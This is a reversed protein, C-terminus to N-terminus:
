FTIVMGKTYSLITKHLADAIDLWDHGGSLRILANKNGEIAFHFKSISNSLDTIVSKIEEISQLEEQKLAGSGEGISLLKQHMQNRLFAYGGPAQAFNESSLEKAKRMLDDIGKGSQLVMESMHSATLRAAEADKSSLEEIQTISRSWYELDAKGQVFGEFIAQGEEVIERQSHEINKTSFLVNGMVSMVLLVLTIPLAIPRRGTKNKDM